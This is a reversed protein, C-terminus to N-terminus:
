EKVRGGNLVGAARADRPYGDLTLRRREKLGFDNHWWAQTRESWKEVEGRQQSPPIRGAGSGL